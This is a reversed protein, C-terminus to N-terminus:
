SLKYFLVYSHKNDIESSQIPLVAKDNCLLWQSDQKHLVHATYHGAALTGSHCISAVLHYSKRCQVEDDLDVSFSLQESVCNVLSMDKVWGGDNLLYRKLHIIVYKGAVVVRKELSANQKSLCVPCERNLLVEENLYNNFASNVNGAVNLKLIMHIDERDDSQLCNTCTIRNRIVVKIQDQSLVSIGCFNDLLYNLVEPVDQQSNVVFDDRGMSVMFRSFADLFCSPDIPNKSSKLFFMIQCYAAVLPSIHHEESALAPLTSWFGTLVSLAQLLANMYCTNGKNIFGPRYFKSLPQSYKANSHKSVKNKFPTHKRPAKKPIDFTSTTQENWIKNDRNLWIIFSCQIATSTLESLVVKTEKTNLGLRRFCSRVNYASYDRAGM